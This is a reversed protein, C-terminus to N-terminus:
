QKKKRNGTIEAVIKFLVSKRYLTGIMATEDYKGLKAWFAPIDLPDVFKSIFDGVTVHNSKEQRKKRWAEWQEQDSNARRKLYEEVEVDDKFVEQIYQIYLDKMKGMM